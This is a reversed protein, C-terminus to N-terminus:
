IKQRVQKALATHVERETQHFDLGTFNFDLEVCELLARSTSEQNLTLQDHDLDYIKDPFGAHWITM